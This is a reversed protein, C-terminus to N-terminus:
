FIPTSDATSAVTGTGESLTAATDKTEGNLLRATDMVTTTTNEALATAANETLVARPSKAKKTSTVGLGRLTEVRKLLNGSGTALQTMAKDYTKTLTQLQGGMTQCTDAVGQVKDYLAEALRLIERCNDEQRTNHWTQLVLNLVLMLNTPNVIVVGQKFAEQGLGKNHNMALVYSGENPIFMLVYSISNEVYKPYQKEALEKVHKIVSDYNRRLADDREADNAAGVYDQYATLSVKSDVIIRAGDACNVVVDPRLENGREGKYSAQVLYEVGERLGSDRLIDSLVQEGWDGHVKGRNKLAEALNDAKQGVQQSQEMMSKFAGELSSTNKAYGEKTEKLLTSMQEMNQRLPTMLKEVHDTNTKELEEARQRLVKETTQSLEARILDIQQKNQEQREQQAQAQQAAVREREEKIQKDQLLFTQKAAELRATLTTIQDSLTDKTQELADKAKQLEETKQEAARQREEALQQATSASHVQEQAAQERQQAATLEAQLQTRQAVASKHLALFLLGTGAATAAIGIIIGLFLEM